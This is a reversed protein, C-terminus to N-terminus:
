VNYAFYDRDLLQVFTKADADYRSCLEFLIRYVPTATNFNLPLQARLFRYTIRSFRM